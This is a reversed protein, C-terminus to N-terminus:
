GVSALQHEGAASQNDNNISFPFEQGPSDLHSGQSMKSGPTYKSARGHRSESKLNQQIKRQEEEQFSDLFVDVVEWARCSGAVVIPFRNMISKVFQNAGAGLLARCVDGDKNYAAWHLPTMETDTTTHDPSAGTAAGDGDLRM